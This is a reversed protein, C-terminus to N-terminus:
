DGKKPLDDPLFEALPEPLTVAGRGGNRMSEVLTAMYERREPETRLECMTRMANAALDVLENRVLEKKSAFLEIRFEDENDDELEITM